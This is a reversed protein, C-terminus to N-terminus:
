ISLLVYGVFVIRFCPKIEIKGVGKVFCDGISIIIKLDLESGQKWEIIKDM